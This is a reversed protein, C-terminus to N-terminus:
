WSSFTYHREEALMELLNAVSKNKRIHAIRVVAAADQLDFILAQYKGPTPITREVAQAAMLSPWLYVTTVKEADKEFRREHVSVTAFPGYGSPAVGFLAKAIPTYNIAGDPRQTPFNARYTDFSGLTAKKQRM